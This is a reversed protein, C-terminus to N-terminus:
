SSEPQFQESPPLTPTLFLAPAQLREGPYASNAIGVPAVGHELECNPGSLETKLAPKYMYDGAHIRLNRATFFPIRNLVSWTLRITMGAIPWPLALIETDVSYMGNSQKTKM